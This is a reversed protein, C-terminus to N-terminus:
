GGSRRPPTPRAVASRLAQARFELESAESPSLGDRGYRRALSAIARAERRYARAERPSIRGSDRADDIREDVNRLESRIRPRPLRSDARGLRDMRPVDDYVPRGVIQAAAPAAVPLISLIALLPAIRM